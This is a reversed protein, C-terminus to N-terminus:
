KIGKMTMNIYNIKFKIEQIIIPNFFIYNINKFYIIFSDM